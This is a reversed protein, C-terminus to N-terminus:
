RAGKQWREMQDLRTQYAQLTREISNLSGVVGGLVNNLKNDISGASNKMKELDPVLRFEYAEEPTVKPTPKGELVAKHYEETKKKRGEAIRAGQEGAAQTHRTEKEVGAVETETNATAERQDENFGFALEAQRNADVQKEHMEELKKQKANLVEMSDQTTKVKSASRNYVRQAQDKRKQADELKKNVEALRADDLEKEGANFRSPDYWAKAKYKDLLREKEKELDEVEQSREDLTKRDKDAAGKLQNIARLKAKEQKVSDLQNRLDKERELGANLKAAELASEDQLRQKIRELKQASYRDEIELKRAAAEQASVANMRVMENLVALEKAKRAEALQDEASYFQRIQESLASFGMDQYGAQRQSEKMSLDFEKLAAQAKGLSDKIDHSANSFGRMAREGSGIKEAWTEAVVSAAGLLRQLVGSQAIQSGIAELLDSTNNKLERYKGSLTNTAAELQGGGRKALEMYLQNLKETQSANDDLVIGYRSFMDFNGQMARAVMMAASQLDGGLIGALNKVAEVNMGITNRDAGFQSLRTLVGIWEQNAIGTASQLEQAMERLRDVYGESFQGTQALAQALKNLRVEGEAFEDLSKKALVFGGALTALGAALVGMPGSVLRALLGEFKGISPFAKVLEDNFQGLWGKGGSTGPNTQQFDAIAKKVRQLKTELASYDKGLAQAKAIDRELQAQAAKAGELNAQTEIKIVIDRDSGM